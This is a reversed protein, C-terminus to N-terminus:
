RCGSFPKSCEIMRATDDQIRDTDRSVDEMRQQRLMRNQEAILRNNEEVADQLDEREQERQQRTAQWDVTRETAFSHRTNPQQKYSQAVAVSPLLCILMLYKM